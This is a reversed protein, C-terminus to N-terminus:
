KNERQSKTSSANSTSTFSIIGGGREGDSMPIGMNFLLFSVGCPALADFLLVGVRGSEKQFAQAGNEKRCAGCIWVLCCTWFGTM